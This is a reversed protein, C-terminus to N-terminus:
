DFGFPVSIQPCRIQNTTRAKLGDPFAPSGTLGGKYGPETLRNLREKYGRETSSAGAEDGDVILWGGDVM